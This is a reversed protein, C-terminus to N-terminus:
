IISKVGVLLHQFAFFERLPTRALWAFGRDFRSGGPRIRIVSRVQTVELAAGELLERADRLTFWRLHSRDFIGQDRRPWTGRVGLQWFTEFFRVNPLSVVASGHAELLEVAGALVAWPDRVHELSDAAVLCDFRGLDPGASAVFEEIDQEIVRDLRGIAAAAFDPDAEVGVVEVGRERKLAEGVAGLACGLDLVRRAGLPVLERV